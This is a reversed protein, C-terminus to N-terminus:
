PAAISVVPSALARGGLSGAFARTSFNFVGGDAAVMLYGDGYRVMGVIPQQLQAGGMSGKFKASGFAFVGGDSAVLWYGHNDATPVLAVIPQSLHRGGMSGYFRADGFAFVGGDVGVMYYGRGTPTAVSGLVSGSLAVRSLDGFFPASSANTSPVPFVRGRSTFLWYGSGSGSFLSMSTVREGAFLRLSSNHLPPASGFAQIQSGTLVYYGHTGAPVIQTAQAGPSGSSGLYPASGFAYVNGARSLMWYGPRAPTPVSVALTIPRSSASTASTGARNTAAVKFTYTAGATLGTVTIRSVPAVRVTKAVTTKRLVSITFGTIPAGNDRAPATWSVVASQKAATARVNTPPDPHGAPVVVNSSSSETSNGVANTAHVTFTYGTGNSLGAVTANTSSAGATATQGGPAATITYGLVASGGNSAPAGWSVSARADGGTGAVNTPPGPRGSPVVVNSSASETSNGVANTAHVTFAYGTGNSLGTVTANTSSAPATTQQGGPNTTITYGLVASGGNSAPAGWSVSARADGATAAVNTPASPATAPASPVRDAIHIFGDPWRVGRQLTAFRFTNHYDFNMESIQVTGDTNVAEVYTVHGGNASWWAVSGLAPHDDVTIGARAAAPGWEWGGGWRQGAPQKYSSTFTVGNLEAKNLQNLRYAVWSHCQGQTMGWQDNLCNAGTQEDCDPANPYPYGYDAASAFARGPLGFALLLLLAFGVFARTGRPRAARSFRRTTRSM